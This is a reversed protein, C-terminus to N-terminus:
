VVMRIDRDSFQISRVLSELMAKEARDPLNELTTLANNIYMLLQNQMNIQKFGYAMGLNLGFDYLLKQDQEPAGALDGSLRAAGAILEAFELRIVKEDFADLNSTRLIGGENIRGIIEALPRLYHLIDADCLATFFKGYLYDGVLVPFQTGDKPDVPKSKDLNDPINKHIQSAMFIFQVIAGLSIVKPSRCNYLRAVMLVLAPRIFNDMPTHELHAYHGVHGAKIQLQDKIATYIHQVDQKISAFVDGSM